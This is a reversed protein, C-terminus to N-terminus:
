PKGSAKGRIRGLRMGTHINAANPEIILIKEVLDQPIVSSRYVMKITKLGTKREFERNFTRFDEESHVRSGLVDKSISMIKRRDKELKKEIHMRERLFKENAANSANEFDEINEIKQARSKGGILGAVMIAALLGLLERFADVDRNQYDGLDVNELVYKRFESSDIVRLLITRELDNLQIKEASLLNILEKLFPEVRSQNKGEVEDLLGLGKMEAIKPYIKSTIPMKEIGYVRKAIEYGTLPEGYAVLFIKSSLGQRLPNEIKKPV